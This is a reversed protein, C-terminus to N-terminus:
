AYSGGIKDVIMMAFLIFLYLISYGFLKPAYKESKLLCVSLYVFIGGLIGAGILYLMGCLNIFYPIFSTIVTLITYILFRFLYSVIIFLTYCFLFEFNVIHAM